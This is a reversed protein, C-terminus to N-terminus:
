QALFGGDIPLVAGNVFGAADSCLWVVAAAVEEPEGLRRSPNAATAAEVFRPLLAFAGDLMPTKVVSPGVANVRIGKRAYEVAASRTLGVVAHKSAAYLPLSHAGTLGAVSATNVIAGGGHELMHRIEYKLCLWVGKVNVAMLRDFEAEDADATRTPMGAVGANNFACDLRGFERAARDIMSAVQDSQAVDVAIFLARGGRERILQSTAEGAQRNIDAVVVNAGARAFALATARGIGSGAGTILATKQALDDM